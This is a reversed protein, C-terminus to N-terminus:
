LRASEAVSLEVIRPPSASEQERKVSGGDSVKWLLQDRAGLLPECRRAIPIALVLTLAPEEAKMAERLVDFHSEEAARRQTRDRRARGFVLIHAVEVDVLVFEVFRLEGGPHLLRVLQGAFSHLHHTRPTLQLLTVFRSSSV